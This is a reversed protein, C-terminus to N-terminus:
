LSESSSSSLHIIKWKTMTGESTKTYV